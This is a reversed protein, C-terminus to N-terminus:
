KGSAKAKKVSLLTIYGKEDRSATKSLSMIRKPTYVFGVTEGGSYAELLSEPTFNMDLISVRLFRELSVDEHPHAETFIKYLEVTDAPDYQKILIESM